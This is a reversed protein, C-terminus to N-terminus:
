SRGTAGDQRAAFVGRRFRGGFLFDEAPALGREGSQYIKGITRAARARDRSSTGSIPSKSVIIIGTTGHETAATVSASLSLYDRRAKRLSM